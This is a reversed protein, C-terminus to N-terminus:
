DRSFRDDGNPEFRTADGLGCFRRRGKGLSNRPGGAHKENAETMRQVQFDIPLGTAARLHGTWAFSFTEWLLSSHGFLRDFQEDPLIMRVDVDRYKEGREVSGVLYVGGPPEALLRLPQCALDLTFLDFTTLHRFRARPQGSEAAADDIRQKLVSEYAAEQTM